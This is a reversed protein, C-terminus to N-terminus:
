KRGARRAKGSKKHSKFKKRVTDRFRSVNERAGDNAAPDEPISTLPVVGFYKEMDDASSITDDLLYQVVAIGYCLVAGALGALAMNKKLSPSSKHLPTVAEEAITPDRSDMVAPLWEVALKAVENAIDRSLVPDTTTATIHLIRTGSPNSVSIMDALGGYTVDRLGLNKITSEMMPRGLILEEYDKTLNTAIQLDSLNVVSDSSASVIYLKSTAKYKPPIFFYTVAGALVAAALAVIIIAKLKRRFLFVLEFLDIEMEEDQNYNRIQDKDM